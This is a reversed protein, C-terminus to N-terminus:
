HNIIHNLIQRVHLINAAISCDSPVDHADEVLNKKSELASTVM